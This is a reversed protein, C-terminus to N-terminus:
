LCRHFGESHELFKSLTVNKYDLQTQPQHPLPIPLETILLM